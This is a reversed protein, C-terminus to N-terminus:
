AERPLEIRFEAGGDLNMATLVGGMHKEIIMKSMYLGIGTGKGQEKTTFYPDFIKPLVDEQIGGGNDWISVVISGVQSSTRIAIRPEIVEHELLQDRANGLIVLVVQAFENPYGRVTDMACSEVDIRIGINEFAASILELSQTIMRSLSFSVKAKDPAFYNRFDDVTKSMHMIIGMITDFQRNMEDRNLEGSNCIRQLLQVLLGINNLPQRWQHAINGIMEGMASQRSQLILLEDKARIEAVASSIRQALHHSLEDLQRHKDSLERQAQQREAVEAELEINKELLAKEALKSDTIDMTFGALYKAGGELVIPFKVSSYSRGNYEEEMLLPKGEDLVKRDDAMMKEALEVPFLERMSKGLLQDLPKGLMHEFNRSLRITRLNEDKFFVYIPSFEMFLSFIEETDRLSQEALRRRSIDQFNVAITAEGTSFVHVDFYGNIPYDRYEIEFSQPGLEGAAVKRYMEPIPTGKLKPFIEEITMNHLQEHSIGIIRDAAPNAGTLILRGDPELRYFYMALPSSEVIRRFKDESQRLLREANEMVIIEEHLPLFRPSTDAPNHCFPGFHRM